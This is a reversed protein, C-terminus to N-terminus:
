DRPKQSFGNGNSISHEDYRDSFLIRTRNIEQLLLVGRRLGERIACKIQDPHLTRAEILDLVTRMPTTVRYGQRVEIDAESLTAYHLVLLSPITSSRRFRCPVTMHMRAPMLDTLDHIDLATEHSWVGQPSDQKNRSWLAWLVLEPREAIPYQTLRYIGRLAHEWEGSLLKRHFHPRLIGCAEAQRATFYGQQRDAVEFLRHRRNM